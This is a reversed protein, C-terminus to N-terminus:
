MEPSTCPKKKREQPIYLDTATWVAMAAYFLWSDTDMSVCCFFLSTQNFFVYRRFTDGTVDLASRHYAFLMLSVSALLPFLYHQLQPEASWHRYQAILHTMFYLIMATLATMPSRKGQKRQLGMYFLGVAALVGLVANIRTLSDTTQGLEMVNTILIGVAAIFCGFAALNSAPFRSCLLKPCRFSCLILLGLTLFLLGYLLYNGPHGGDLLGSKEMGSGYLWFRLILGLIGLCLTTPCLIKESIKHKM